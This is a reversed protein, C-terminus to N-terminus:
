VSPREAALSPLSLPSADGCELPQALPRDTALAALIRRPPTYPQRGHACLKNDCVLLDSAQWDFMVMTDAIVRRICELDSVRIESGDAHTSHYYFRSMLRPRQQWADLRQILSPGLFDTTWPAYEKHLLHAQNFWVKEGTVRHMRVVPSPKQCVRVGGDDTWEIKWGRNAAFEEAEGRDATGFMTPWTVEYGCAKTEPLQCTLMLGKEEFRQTLDRPLRQYVLRM